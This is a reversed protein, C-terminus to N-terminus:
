EDAADSTYLLCTTFREEIAKRELMAQELATRLAGIADAFVHDLM